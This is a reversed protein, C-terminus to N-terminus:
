NSDEEIKRTEAEIEKKMIEEIEEASIIKREVRKIPKKMKEICSLCDPNIWEHYCKVIFCDHKENKKEEKEPKEDEEEEEKGKQEAEYLDALGVCEFLQDEDCEIGQNLEEESLRMEDEDDDIILKTAYLIEEEHGLESSSSRIRRKRVSEEEDDDGESDSLNRRTNGKQQKEECNDDDSIIYRGKQETEEEENDTINRSNWKIRRRKTHSPLSDLFNSFAGRKRKPPSYIYPYMYTCPPKPEDDILSEADSLEAEQDTENEDSYAKLRKNDHPDEEEIESIFSCKRKRAM